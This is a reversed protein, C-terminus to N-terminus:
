SRPMEGQNQREARGNRSVTGQNRREARCSRPVASQGQRASSSLVALVAQGLSLGGDNAPVERNTWVTLLKTLPELDALLLDNQFVGGSLVVTGVGHEEALLGIAQRIGAALGAHFARAIESV